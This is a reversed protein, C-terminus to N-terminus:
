RRRSPRAVRTRPAEGSGTFVSLQLLEGDLLLGSGVVRDGVLRIDEGLGASASRRHPALAVTSVFAALCENRTAKRDLHELGDLLYGQLLKPYLRTFAAPRSLYDLCLQEDGLALLAGSQGPVLPFARRLDALADGRNRYIDATSGTPSNVGHRGAKASVEEWVAAQAVGRAFPDASLREAKHRRLDPYATHRAADFSASQAHWRGQEVCSVPIRTASKGAVLVTVNLIRDQKAGLLEEGDYLLVPMELPNSALLEPVTGAADVETVRFGLPLAEELTLYEAKPNTHPFLPAITLGRHEVPDGIQITDEVM